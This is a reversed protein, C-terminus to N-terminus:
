EMTQEPGKNHYTAIFARIRDEEFANMKDLKTWATLAITTDLNPRPTIVVRQYEKLFGSLKGVLDKCSQSSFTKPLDREKKPADEPGFPSMVGKSNAKLETLSDGKKYTINLEPKQKEGCNYSIVIYGHELSHILYGDSVEYPYVGRKAWLEFHNGSTPPNSNYTIGQIIKIHNRGLDKLTSAQDKVKVPKPQLANKSENMIFVAIGIFSLLVVIAMMWKLYDDATQPKELM